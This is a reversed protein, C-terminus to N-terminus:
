QRTRKSRMRASMPACCFSIMRSAWQSDASLGAWGRASERTRARLGARLSLEAPSRRQRQIQGSRPMHVVHHTVGKAVTQQLGHRLPHSVRTVDGSSSLNARRPAIFKGHQQPRQLEPASATALLDQGRKLLGRGCSWVTSRLAPIPMAQQGPSASSASMSSLRESSAMLAALRLSWRLTASRRQSQDSCRGSDARQEPVAGHTSRLSGTATGAAWPAGARGLRNYQLLRRHAPLQGCRPM